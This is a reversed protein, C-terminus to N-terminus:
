RRGASADPDTEKGTRRALLRARVGVPNFHVENQRRVETCQAQREQLYAQVDERHRLYYSIVMHIDALDLSPYRQVIERRAGDLYATVVSDLTVRTNGVRIVRDADLSLPLEQPTLSLSM